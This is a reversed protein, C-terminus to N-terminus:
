NIVDLEYNRELRFEKFFVNGIRRVDFFVFLNDYKGVKYCVFFLMLEFFKYVKVQLVFFQCFIRIGDVVGKEKSNFVGFIGFVQIDIWYEFFGYGYFVDYQMLLFCDVM